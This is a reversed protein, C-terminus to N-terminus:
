IYYKEKMVGPARRAGTRTLITGSSRSRGISRTQLLPDKEAPMPPTIDAKPEAQTQGPPTAEIKENSKKEATPKEEIKAAADDVRAPPQSAMCTDTWLGVLLGGAIAALAVIIALRRNNEGQM